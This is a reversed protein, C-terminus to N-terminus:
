ITISFLTGLAFQIISDDTNIVHGDTEHLTCDYMPRNIPSLGGIELYAFYNLVGGTLKPNPTFVMVVETRVEYGLCSGSDGICMGPGVISRFGGYARRRM